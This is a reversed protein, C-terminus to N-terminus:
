KTITLYASFALAVLISIGFIWGAVSGAKQVNKQGKKELKSYGLAILVIIVGFVAGTLM